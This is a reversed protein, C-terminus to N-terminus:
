EIGYVLTDPFFAYWGFWYALHGPIRPATEGDPGVLGEETVQWARGASDLLTDPDPGPSFLEEGRNFARVEGGNTYTIESFFRDQGNVTIVGRTAVLVVPTQGITDNVVQQEALTIVHYAKPVGDVFLAYVFDKAPLAGARQWVPFMTEGSAFYDGYLIGSQYFDAPYVGTNRDLVLTEPHLALWDGWASLVIPLINLRIDGGALEGLVPQGTLQNWLTRTPRDYMLKNSRYLFGSTGFTYTQGDAGRGDYAIAAGCLTCYAISVPVGGIVDNVMEHNDVIRLPYARAEGNVVLGFVPEEPLLYDAAAGAITPPQELPPIGDIRVGGWQIEEVRIRSPYEDKLFDDFGPDIRGLLLGKWGTFGPPPVLDTKGYWEVWAPWDDGFSHGSLMELAEITDAYSSSVIGIQRARMLELFVAVFRTDGAELITQRAEGAAAPEGSASLDFMLQTALEDPLPNGAPLSLPTAPPITAAPGAIIPEPIALPESAEETPVLEPTNEMQAPEPTAAPATPGETVEVTDAGCGALWLCALCALLLALRESKM